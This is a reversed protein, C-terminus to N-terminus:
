FNVKKRGRWPHSEKPKNVRSSREWQAVLEKHDLIKPQFNSERYLTFDLSKGKYFILVKEDLKEIM